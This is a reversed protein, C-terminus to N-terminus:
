ANLFHMYVKKVETNETQCSRCLYLGDLIEFNKCLETLQDRVLTLNFHNEVQM